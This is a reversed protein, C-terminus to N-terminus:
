ERDLRGGLDAKRGKARRGVTATGTAIVRSM